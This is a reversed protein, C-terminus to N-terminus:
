LGIAVNGMIFLHLSIIEWPIDLAGFNSRMIYSSLLFNSMAKYHKFTKVGTNCKHSLHCM